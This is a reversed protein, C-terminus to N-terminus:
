MGQQNQNPRFVPGQGVSSPVGSPGTQGILNQNQQPTNTMQSDTNSIPSPLSINTTPHQPAQTGLAGPPPSIPREKM